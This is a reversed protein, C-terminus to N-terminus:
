ASLRLLVPSGLISSCSKLDIDHRASNQALLTEANDALAQVIPVRVGVPMLWCM